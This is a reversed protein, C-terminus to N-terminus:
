GRPPVLGDLTTLLQKADIPKDLFANPHYHKFKELYAHYDGTVQDQIGSVVVVPTEKLRPDKRIAVLASLGGREPMMLDLLVVDSPEAALLGLGDSVSNAARVKWGNDVLLSSLYTTTDPEDDIVVASRQSM